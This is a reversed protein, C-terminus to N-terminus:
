AGRTEWGSIQSTQSLPKQARRPRAERLLLETHRHAEFEEAIVVFAQVEGFVIEDGRDVRVQRIKSGNVYTGNRSGADRLILMPGILHVDAHRRSVSLSPVFIECGEDRGVRMVPRNLPEVRHGGDLDFMLCRGPRPAVVPGNPGNGGNGAMGDVVGDGNGSACPREGEDMRRAAELLVGMTTLSGEPSQEVDIPRFQASAGKMSLLCVAGHMGRNGTNGCVADQIQGDRFRLRGSCRGNSVELEGTKRGSAILQVIETVTLFSAAASWGHDTTGNATNM